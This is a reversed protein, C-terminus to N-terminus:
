YSKAKLALLLITLMAAYGFYCNVTMAAELTLLYYAGFLNWSIKSREAIQQYYKQDVFIKIYKYRNFKTSFM